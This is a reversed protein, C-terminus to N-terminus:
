SGVAFVKGIYYYQLITIYYNLLITIYYHLLTTTYYYLLISLCLFKVKTSNSQTSQNPVLTTLSKQGLSFLYFASSVTTCWLTFIWGSGFIIMCLKASVFHFYLKFKTSGQSSINNEFFITIISLQGGGGAQPNGPDFNLPILSLGLAACM